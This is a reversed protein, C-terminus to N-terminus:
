LFQLNVRYNLIVLQLYRLQVMVTIIMIQTIKFIYPIRLNFNYTDLIKKLEICNQQSQSASYYGINQANNTSQHYLIDSM